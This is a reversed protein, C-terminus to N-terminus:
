VSQSTFEEHATKVLRNYGYNQAAERASKLLDQGAATDDLDCLVSGLISKAGLRRLTMGHRTAIALALAAADRANAFDSKYRRHLAELSVADCGLRYLGMASGYEKALRIKQDIVDDRRNCEGAQWRAIEYKAESLYVQNLLDLQQFGEAAQRADFLDMRAKELMGSQLHLDARHRLFIGVARMSELRRLDHIASTYLEEATERDGNLHSALGRYGRCIPLTSLYESMMEPPSTKLFIRQLRAESEKLTEVARRMEGREIWAAALNIDLRITTSRGASGEHKRLLFRAHNFYPIADYLRGQALALVGRENWLWALEHPFLPPSPNDVPGFTNLTPDLAEMDVDNLSAVLKRAQDCSNVGRILDRLRDDTHEYISKDQPAYLGDSQMRALVSFPRIQRLLGYAARFCDPMDASARALLGAVNRARWFYLDEKQPKEQRAQEKLKATLALRLKEPVKDEKVSFTRWAQVLSGVLEDAMAQYEPTLLCVDTPQKAHLTFVFTNTYDDLPTTIATNGLIYRRLHPHLAFRCGQRLSALSTILEDSETHIAAQLWLPSYRERKKAAPEGTQDDRKRDVVSILSRRILRNLADELESRLLATRLGDRPDESADKQRKSNALVADGALDHVDFDDTEQTGKKKGSELRVLHALYRRINPARLLVKGEVPYGFYTLHQLIIFDLRSKRDLEHKWTRGVTLGYVTLVAEVVRPGISEKSATAISQYLSTAWREAASGDDNAIFGFAHKAITWLYFSGELRGALEKWEPNDFRGDNIDPAQTLKPLKLVLPRPDRGQDDKLASFVRDVTKTGDYPETDPLARARVNVRGDIKRIGYKKDKIISKLNDTVEQIGPQSPDVKVAYEQEFLHPYHSVRRSIFVVDLPIEEGCARALTQAFSRVEQNRYRGAGTVLRDFGGVLILARSITPKHKRLRGLLQEVFALHGIEDRLVRLKKDEDKRKDDGHTTEDLYLLKLINGVAIISSSFELSHGLNLFLVHSYALTNTLEHESDAAAEVNDEFPLGQARRLIEREIAFFHSAKGTGIESECLFVRCGFKPAEGSSLSNVFSRASRRASQPLRGHVILPHRTYIKLTGNDPKKIEVLESTKREEQYEFVNTWWQARREALETLARVLTASIVRTKLQELYDIAANMIETSAISEVLVDARKAQAVNEFLDACADWVFPDIKSRHLLEDAFITDSEDRWAKALDEFLGRRRPERGDDGSGDRAKKTQELLRDIQTCRDNLSVSLRGVAHDRGIADDELLEEGYFITRVGYRVYNEVKMALREPKPRDAPMLAFLDRGVAPNQSVFERLPRQLDEERLGLGVFLIPNGSFVVEQAARLSASRSGDALYVGQYDGESAVISGPADARGHLHYVLTGAKNEASALNLLSALSTATQTDSRSLEGLYGRSSFSADTEQYIPLKPPRVDDRTLLTGRAHNLHELLREIERDYNTTLYRWLGLEEQLAAIPDDAPRLDGATSSANLTRSATEAAVRMPTEARCNRIIYAELTMWVKKAFAASAFTGLFVGCIPFAISVASRRDVPFLDHDPKKGDPPGDILKNLFSLVNEKQRSFEAREGERSPHELAIVQRKLRKLTKRSYVKNFDVGIRAPNTETDSHLPARRMAEVISQVLKPPSQLSKPTESTNVKHLFLVKAFRWLRDALLDSAYTRDSIFLSAIFDHFGSTLDSAEGEAAMVEESLEFALRYFELLAVTNEAHRSENNRLEKIQAKLACIEAFYEPRKLREARDLRLLAEDRVRDVFNKWSMAGYAASVGSGLFGILRKTNMARFLQEFTEEDFQAINALQRLRFNHRRVLM